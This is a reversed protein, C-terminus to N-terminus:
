HFLGSGMGDNSEDYEERNAEVKKEEPLTATTSPAPDGVPATGAALAPGGAGVNCIFSRININALAKAFLGPWFTEANVAAAKILAKIKDETNTVEDNHLTLASYICTLEPVSATTGTFTPCTAAEHPNMGMVSSNTRPTPQLGLQLQPSFGQNSEENAKEPQKHKRVAYHRPELLSYVLYVVTQKDM